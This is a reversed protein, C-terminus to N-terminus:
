RRFALFMAELASTMSERATSQIVPGAVFRIVSPVTRSLSVSECEAAVGATTQQFRWYANWRWLFGHDDGPAKARQAPTGFDALERISTAISTSIARDPQLRRFTVHHETEYVVTIVKRRQVILGVRNWGAGAELIRSSLVENPPAPPATHELRALVQDLTAGPIFVDGRWHHVLGGPVDIERGQADRTEVATTVFAGAMMRRRDDARDPADIALFPGDRMERTMRAEVSAVHRAWGALTGSEPGAASLAGVSGLVLACVPVFRRMEWYPALRGFVPESAASCVSFILGRIVRIVRIVLTV